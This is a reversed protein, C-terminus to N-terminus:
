PSCHAISLCADDEYEDGQEDVYQAHTQDNGDQGSENLVQEATRDALRGEHEPQEHRDVRDHLEEARWHEARERVSEPPPRDDEEGQGPEAEVVDQETQRRGDRPEHETADDGTNEARRERWDAGVDGVDTRWFLAGRVEAQNPDGETE